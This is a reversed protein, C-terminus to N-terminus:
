YISSGTPLSNIIYSPVLSINGWSFNYKDMVYPSTIWRKSGPEVLYVAAQDYARMLGAQTSIPAGVDVLAYYYAEQINNWDRFLRNYTDPNPIHRRVGNDILYVAPQGPIKVRLGNLEPTRSYTVLEGSSRTAEYRARLSETATVRALEIEEASAAEAAAEEDSLGTLDTTDGACAVLWVAAFLTIVHTCTKM